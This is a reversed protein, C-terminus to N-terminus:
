FAIGDESLDIWLYKIYDPDIDFGYKERVLYGVKKNEIISPEGLLDYLEEKNLGILTDSKLLDDMMKERIDSIYGDVGTNKWKSSDFKLSQNCSSLLILLILSFSIYSYRM